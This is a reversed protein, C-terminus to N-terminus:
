SERLCESAFARESESLVEAAHASRNSESFLAGAEIVAPGLRVVRIVWLWISSFFTVHAFCYSM